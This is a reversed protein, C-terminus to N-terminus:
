LLTYLIIVPIKFNIKSITDLWFNALKNYGYNNKCDFEVKKEFCIILAKSLFRM